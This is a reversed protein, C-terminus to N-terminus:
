TMVSLSPSFRPPLGLGAHEKFLLPTYPCYSWQSKSDSLIM